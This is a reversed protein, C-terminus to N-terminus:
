STSAPRSRTSRASSRATASTTSAAATPRSCRPEHDEHVRGLRARRAQRRRRGQDRRRCQAGHRRVHRAGREPRHGAHVGERALRRRHEEQPPQGAAVEEQVRRRHPLRQRHERRHDQARRLQHRRGGLVARRLGRAHRRLSPPHQPHSAHHAEQPRHPRHPGLRRAPPKKRSARMATRVPVSAHAGYHRRGSLTTRAHVVDLESAASGLAVAIREGRQVVPVLAAGVVEAVPDGARRVVRGVGRLLREQLHELPQRAQGAAVHVEAGVQQGRRPVRAVVRDLAAAAGRGGGLDRVGRRRDAGAGLGLLGVATRQARGVLLVDAGGVRQEGDALALRERQALEAPEGVVLDGLDHAHVAVRDGLQDRARPQVQAVPQAAAREHRDRGRRGVALGRHRQKRERLVVHELVRRM